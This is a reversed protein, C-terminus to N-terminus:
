VVFYLCVILLIKGRSFGFKADIYIRYSEVSRAITNNLVCTSLKGLAGFHWCPKDSYIPM